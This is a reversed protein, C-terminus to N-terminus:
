RGLTVNVIEQPSLMDFTRCERDNNGLPYICKISHQYIYFRDDLVSTKINNWSIRGDNNGGLNVNIKGCPANADANAVFHFVKGNLSVKFQLGKESSITVKSQNNPYWHFVKFDHFGKNKLYQTCQQENYNMDITPNMDHILDLATAAVDHVYDINALSFQDVFETPAVYHPKRLM